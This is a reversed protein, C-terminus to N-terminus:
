WTYRVVGKGAYGDNRVTRLIPGPIELNEPARNRVM